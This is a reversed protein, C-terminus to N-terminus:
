PTTAPAATKSPFRLAWRELLKTLVEEFAPAGSLGTMPQTGLGSGKVGVVGSNADKYQGELTEGGSATWLLRGTSDVLAAKLQVSTSPKGSENWELNRSEFLDIRYTLVASTRTVACLRPAALSDIRANKLVAERQATWLSEAKGVRVLTQVSMPSRWTHGAGKLSSAVVGEVTQESKLNSDFSVVPMLAISRLEAGTFGPAIWFLDGGKKQAAADRAAPGALGTVLLALVLVHKPRMARIGEFRTVPLPYPRVEFSFRPNVRGSADPLGRHNAGCM